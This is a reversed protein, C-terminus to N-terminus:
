GNGDVFCVCLSMQQKWLIDMTENTRLVNEAPMTQEVTLETQADDSIEKTGTLSIDEQKTLSSLLMMCDEIDEAKIASEM